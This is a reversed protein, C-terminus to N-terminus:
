GPSAVDLEIRPWADSLNDPQAEIDATGATAYAHFAASFRALDLGMYVAGTAEMVKHLFEIGSAGLRALGAPSGSQAKVVAAACQILGQLFSREPSHRAAIQWLGEWAEHAEWPYGHNYLDVGWLYETSDRWRAADLLAAPPPAVPRDARSSRGPLFARAPLPRAPLYRQMRMVM